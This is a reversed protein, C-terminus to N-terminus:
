QQWSICSDEHVWWGYYAVAEELMVLEDWLGDDSNVVGVDVEFREHIMKMDMM